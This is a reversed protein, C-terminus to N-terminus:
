ESAATDCALRYMPENAGVNRPSLGELAGEPPSISLAPPDASSSRLEFAAGVHDPLPSMFTLPMRNDARALVDASTIPM